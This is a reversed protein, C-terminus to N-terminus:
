RTPQAKQIPMDFGMVIDIGKNGQGNPARGVGGQDVRDPGISWIKFAKGNRQYGMQKGTFPDIALKGFSALNAPLSQSRTQLLKLSLLELRREATQKASADVSQALIPIFIRNLLNDLSKNNDIDIMRKEVAQSFGNWDELDRPIAEFTLRWAEVYRFEFVGQMHPASLLADLWGAERLNPDGMMEGMAKFSGSGKLGKITARGMVVEGGFAKRIDSRDKLGNLMAEMQRLMSSDNRADTILNELTRHCIATIAMNVLQGILYPEQSSHEGVRLAARLSKMADTRNGSMWQARARSCQWKAIRKMDAFEPFLLSAGKAYDRKFDVLPKTALKDVDSFLSQHTQIALLVKGLDPQPTESAGFTDLLKVLDKKSRDGEIAELQLGITRYLSAANGTESVAPNPALDAVETPVGLAKLKAVEEPLKSATRSLSNCLIGGGIGCTLLPIGFCGLLLPKKWGRSM